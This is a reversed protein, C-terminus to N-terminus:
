PKESNDVLFEFTPPNSDPSDTKKPEQLQELVINEDSEEPKSDNEKKEAEKAQITTPGSTMSTPLPSPQPTPTATKANSPTTSSVPTTIAGLEINSSKEKHDPEKPSPTILKKLAQLVEDPKPPNQRSVKGVDLGNHVILSAAAILENKENKLNTLMELIEGYVKKNQFASIEYDQVLNIVKNLDKLEKSEAEKSQDITPGSAVTAKTTTSSSPPVPSKEKNEKSDSEELERLLAENNFEPNLANLVADLIEEDTWKKEKKMQDVISLANNLDKRVYANNKADILLNKLLENVQPYKAEFDVKPLVRQQISSSTTNSAQKNWQEIWQNLEQLSPKNQALSASTSAKPSPSNKFDLLKNWAEDADKIKANTQESLIAPKKTQDERASKLAAQNSRLASMRLVNYQGVDINKDQLYIDFSPNAKLCPLRKQLQGIAKTVDNPPTLKMLSNMTADAINSKVRQPPTLSSKTKQIEPKLKTSGASTPTPSFPTTSTKTVPSPPSLYLKDFSDHAEKCNNYVTQFSEKTSGKQFQQAQELALQCDFSALGFQIEKGKPIKKATKIQELKTVDNGITAIWVTIQAGEVAAKKANAAAEAEARKAEAQKEQAKENEKELAKQKEKNDAKQQELQQQKNKNEEEIKQQLKLDVKNFGQKIEEAKIILPRFDDPQNDQVAAVRGNLQGCQIILNDVEDCNEFHDIFESRLNNRLRGLYFDMEATIRTKEKTVNVDILPSGLPGVSPTSGLSHQLGSTTPSPTSPVVGPQPVPPGSHITPTPAPPPSPQLQSGKQQQAQLLENEAYQIHQIIHMVKQNIANFTQEYSKSLKETSIIGQYDKNLKQFYNLLNSYPIQKGKANTFNTLKYTSLNLVLDNLKELHKQFQIVTNGLTTKQDTTLTISSTASSVPPPPPPPQPQVSSPQSPPVPPSSPHSSPLHQNGKGKQDSEAQHKREAEAQKFAEGYFNDVAKFDTIAKEHTQKILTYSSKPDKATENATRCTLLAATKLETFQQKHKELLKDPSAKNLTNIGQATDNVCYKRILEVLEFERTTLFAQERQLQGRGETGFQYVKQQEENKKLLQRTQELMPTLIGLTQQEIPPINPLLLQPISSPPHPTIPQPGLPSSPSFPHPPTTPVVTKGLSPPPQHAQNPTPVQQGSPSSSPQVSPASPVPSSPPQPPPLQAGGKITMVFDKIKEVATSYIVKVEESSDAKLKQPEYKIKEVNDDVEYDNHKKIEEFHATVFKIIKDIKPQDLKLGQSDSESGFKTVKWKHGRFTVIGSDSDINITEKSVQPTSNVGSAM